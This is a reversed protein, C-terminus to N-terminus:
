GMRETAQGRMLLHGNRIFAPRITMGAQMGPFLEFYTRHEDSYDLIVVGQARLAERLKPMAKLAYEGDGTLSAELLMQISELIDESMLPSEGALQAAEAEAQRRSEILAEITDMLRDSQRLLEDVDIHLVACPEETYSQTERHRFICLATLGTMAAAFLAPLFGKDLVLWLSLVAGMLLATNPVLRMFKSKLSLLTGIFPIAHALSPASSSKQAPTAEAASKKYVLQAGTAAQMCLLSQQAAHFLRDVESREERTVSERATEYGVKELLSLLCDICEQMGTCNRLEKELDDRRSQYANLM